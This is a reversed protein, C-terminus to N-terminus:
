KSFLNYYKVMDVMQHYTELGIPYALERDPCGVCERLREERESGSKCGIARRYMYDKGQEKIIRDDYKFQLSVPPEPSTTQFFHLLEDAILNCDKISGSSVIVGEITMTQDIDRFSIVPSDQKPKIAYEVIIKTM